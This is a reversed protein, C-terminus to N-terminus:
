MWVLMGLAPVKSHRDRILLQTLVKDVHYRLRSGPRPMTGDAPSFASGLCWIPSPVPRYKYMKASQGSGTLLSQDHYISFPSSSFPTGLQYCVATNQRLIPSQM